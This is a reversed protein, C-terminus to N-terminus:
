ALSPPARGTPLSLSHTKFNLSAYIPPVSALNTPQLQIYTQPAHTAPQVHDHRERTRYQSGAVIKNYTNSERQPSPQQSAGPCTDPPFVSVAITPSPLPFPLLRPGASDSVCLCLLAGVVLMARHCYLGANCRPRKMIITIFIM